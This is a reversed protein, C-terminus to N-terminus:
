FRVTRECPEKGGARFITETIARFRNGSSLPGTLQCFPLTGIGNIRQGGSVSFGAIKILGDFVLLLRQIIRRQCRFFSLFALFAQSEKLLSFWETVFESRHPSEFQDFLDIADYLALM